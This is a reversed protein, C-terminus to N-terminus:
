FLKVTHLRNVITMIKKISVAIIELLWPSEKGDVAGIRFQQILVVKNLVPDFGLVGVANDTKLVEWTFVPSWGGSFFRHRFHVREM